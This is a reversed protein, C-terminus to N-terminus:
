MGAVRVVPTFGITANRAWYSDTTVTVGKVTCLLRPIAVGVTHKREREGNGLDRGCREGAWFPQRVWEEYGDTQLLRGVILDAPRPDRV